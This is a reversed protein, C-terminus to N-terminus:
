ERSGGPEINPIDFDTTTTDRQLRGKICLLMYTLGASAGIDLLFGPRYYEGGAATLAGAFFLIAIWVKTGNSRLYLTLALLVSLSLAAATIASPIDRTTLPHHWLWIMLSTWASMCVDCSFPKSALLGFSSYEGLISRTVLTAALAAFAFGIWM